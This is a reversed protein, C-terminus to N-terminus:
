SDLGDRHRTEWGLERVVVRKGVEGNTGRVVGEVAVSMGLELALEIGSELFAVLSLQRNGDGQFHRQLM